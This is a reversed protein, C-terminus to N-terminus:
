FPSECNQMKQIEAFSTLNFRIVFSPHQTQARPQMKTFVTLEFRYPHASIRYKGDNEKVELHNVVYISGEEITDFRHSLRIPITAQITTGKEDMFIMEISKIARNKEGFLANWKRTVRVLFAAKSPLNKVVDGLYVKTPAM